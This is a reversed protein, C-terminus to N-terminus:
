LFFSIHVKYIDKKKSRLLADVEKSAVTSDNVSPATTRTQIVNGM